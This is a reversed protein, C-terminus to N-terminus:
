LPSMQTDKFRGWIKWDFLLLDLGTFTKKQACSQACIGAAILSRPRLACSMPYPSKRIRLQGRIPRSVNKRTSWVMRTMNLFKFNSAFIKDAIYLPHSDLGYLKPPIFFKSLFFQLSTNKILINRLTKQKNRGYRKFM